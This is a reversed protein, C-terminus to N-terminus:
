RLTILIKKGDAGLNFATKEFGPASFYVKPNNSFGFKETPYGVPNTSLKGDNDEDHIVSVAYKGIPLDTVTLECAKNKPAISFNKIAKQPQDPFGKEGSFILVRINGKDSSAQTIQIELKPSPAYFFMGMLTFLLSLLLHHM